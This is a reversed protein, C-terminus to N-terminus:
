ASLNSQRRMNATQELLALFQPSDCEAIHNNKSTPIARLVIWGMSAATNYKECDSLFHAGRTHAGGSFIGGEIEVAIMLEQCYIDMRWKRKPHFALEVGWEAGTIKNYIPILYDYKSAVAKPDPKVKAPKKSVAAAVVRAKAKPEIIRGAIAPDDASFRKGAM